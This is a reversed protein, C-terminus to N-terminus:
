SALLKSLPDDDALGALRMQFALREYFAARRGHGREKQRHYEAVTDLELPTCTKLMKAAWEGTQTHVQVMQSQEKLARKIADLDRLNEVAADKSFRIRYEVIADYYAQKSGNGIARDAHKEDRKMRAALAAKWKKKDIGAAKVITDDRALADCVRLAISRAEKSIPM